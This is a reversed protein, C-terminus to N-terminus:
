IIVKIRHVFGQILHIPYLHSLCCPDTAPSRRPLVANGHLTDPKCLGPDEPNPDPKCRPVNLLGACTTHQSADGLLVAHAAKM